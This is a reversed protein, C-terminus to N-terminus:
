DKVEEVSASSNIRMNLTQGHLINENYENILENCRSTLTAIENYVAKLGNQESILGARKSNFIATSAFCNMTNACDNFEKIRANLSEVGTEYASIKKNIEDQMKNIEDLLKILKKEIKRFVAIYSEYFDVVKDQDKFYEAYHKELEEPLDKIETGVRVYLEEQKQEFPYVEIEEGLSEQNEEFVRTLPEVLRVKDDDSM